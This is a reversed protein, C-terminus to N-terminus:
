RGTYGPACRAAQDRTQSWSAVQHGRASSARWWTKKGGQPGAEIWKDLLVGRYTVADLYVSGVSLTSTMETEGIAFFSGDGFMWGVRGSIVVREGVEDLGRVLLEADVIPALVFWIDAIM